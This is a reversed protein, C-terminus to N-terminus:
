LVMAGPMNGAGQVQAPGARVNWYYEADDADQGARRVRFAVRGPASVVLGSLMMICRTRLQDEFNANVDFEQLVVDNLLVTIHGVLQPADDQVSDRELAWLVTTRPFILPFAQSVFDDCLDVLSVRNDTADRIVRSACL